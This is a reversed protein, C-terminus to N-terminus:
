QLRVGAVLGYGFRRRQRHLGRVLEHPRVLVSGIDEGLEDAVLGDSGLEVLQHDCVCGCQM